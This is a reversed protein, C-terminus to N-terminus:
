GKAPLKVSKALKFKLNSNAQVTVDRKPKAKASDSEKVDKKAPAKGSETSQAISSTELPYSKGHVEISALTVTLEAPNRKKAAVVRGTLHAGKPIVTKGGVKIPASLTAAFSDGAHSKNSALTQGVTASIATGKPVTILAASQSAKSPAAGSKAASSKKATSATAKNAATGPKAASTKKAAAAAPKGSAAPKAAEPKPATGAENTAQNSCGAVTLLAVGAFTLWLQRHGQFNFM